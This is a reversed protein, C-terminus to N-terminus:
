RAESPSGSEDLRRGQHSAERRLKARNDRVKFRSEATERTNPTSALWRNMARVTMGECVERTFHVPDAGDYHARLGAAGGTVTKGCDLCFHSDSVCM